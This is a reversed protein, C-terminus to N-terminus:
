HVFADVGGTVMHIAARAMDNIPTFDRGAEPEM